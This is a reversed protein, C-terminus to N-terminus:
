IFIILLVLGVVVVMNLAGPFIPGYLAFIMFIICILPLTYGISRRAAELTLIILISGM